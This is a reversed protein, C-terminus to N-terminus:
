MASYPPLRMRRTEASPRIVVTAPVPTAPKVPSPPGAVEAGKVAVRGASPAILGAISMLLTTKGCGSPGVLSLFEGENVTFSINEIALTSEGGAQRYSKSLNEVQLIPM